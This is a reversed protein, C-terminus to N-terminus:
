RSKIIQEVASVVNFDNQEDSETLVITKHEIEPPLWFKKSEEILKAQRAPDTIGRRLFNKRVVADSQAKLLIFSINIEFRRENLAAAGSPTVACVGHRGSLTDRISGMSSGYYEGLYEDYEIFRYSEIGALFEERSLFHYFELDDANRPKRTTHNKVLGILNGFFREDRLLASYYTKGIATPGIFAVLKHSGRLEAFLDGYKSKLSEYERDWEADLGYFARIEMVHDLAARFEGMVGPAIGFIGLVDCCRMLELDFRLTRERSLPGGESDEYPLADFPVVPSYGAARAINKVRPSFNKDSMLIRTPFACYM